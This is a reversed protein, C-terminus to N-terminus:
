EAPPFHWVFAFVQHFRPLGHRLSVLTIRFTTRCRLSTLQQVRHTLIGLNNGNLWSPISSLILRTLSVLKPKTTTWAPSGGRRDVPFCRKWPQGVSPVVTSTTEGRSTPLLGTDMDALYVRVGMVLNAIKMSSSSRRKLIVTPLSRVELILRVIRVLGVVDYNRFNIIFKYDTSSSSFGMGKM